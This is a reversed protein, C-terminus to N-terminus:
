YQYIWTKFSHYKTNFYRKKKLKVAIQNALDIPSKKNIKALIMAVNTSIDSEFKEPPIEANIGELNKPLILENKDAMDIVLKKIIDLYKQFINM